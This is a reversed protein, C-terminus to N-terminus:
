PLTMHTYSVDELEYCAIRARISRFLHEALSGQRYRADIHALIISVFNPTSECFVLMERLFEDETCERRELADLQTRLNFEFQSMSANTSSASFESMSRQDCLYFRDAWCAGESIARGFRADCSNSPM